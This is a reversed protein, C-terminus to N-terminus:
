KIKFKFTKVIKKDCKKKPFNGIRNCGFLFFGIVDYYVQVRVCSNKFDREEENRKERKNEKEKINRKDKRIKEKLRM